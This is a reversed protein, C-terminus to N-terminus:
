GGTILRELPGAPLSLNLLQSFVVYITGTFVLGIPLTLALNRKGFARATAAFLLATAIVFGARDLLALQAALGGIIWAIPAPDQAPRAAPADRFAAVVTWVSLALLAWAIWRPVDAPGVGSYGRSEPLTAVDRFIIVAILALVAAVTLAAGDPRRRTDPATTM